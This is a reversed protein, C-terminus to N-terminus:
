SVPYNIVENNLPDLELIKIRAMERESVSAAPNILILSWLNPSNPNFKVASRAVVLAPSPLNSDLLARSILSYRLVSEPYKQASIIALDGNGTKMAQMQLRDTNFYPFCVIMGLFVLFLGFSRTVSDFKSKIFLSNIKNKTLVLNGILVGSIIANWFMIAVNGPSIISQAQFVTWASFLAALNFDFRAILQQAKLFSYIVLLILFIQLVLLPYGGTAAYELFYNHANDTYEAWPHGAAIQDRYKLFYDGFSDLGVGVFPNDNATTFASRWFDGRSQVSVKYLYTKLPGINLMGGIGILVFFGSFVSMLIFFIKNLNYLFILLFVIIGIVIGVYGQISLTRYITFMFLSAFFVQILYRYRFKWCIVLGPIFSIAAFSSQFNPNGLTGIVGNTRSDWRLLDIGYSQFISYVSTILSSFVIYRLISSIHSKKVYICSALVVILLSLSTILGLGRGTRGFIQQELPAKSSLMVLLYQLVILITIIFLFKIERFIIYSKFYYALKPIFYMSVLFLIIVKPIILADRSINPTIALTSITAAIFLMNIETKQGNAKMKM